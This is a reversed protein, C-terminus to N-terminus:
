ETYRRPPSKSSIRREPSVPKSYAPLLIPTKPRWYETPSTDAGPDPLFHNDAVRVSFLKVRRLGDGVLGHHRERAASDGM